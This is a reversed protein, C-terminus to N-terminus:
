FTMGAAINLRTHLEWGLCAEPALYFRDGIKFRVGGGATFAGETHSFKRFGFDNSNRFVGGGVVFFPTVPRRDFADFTANGTLMLDRDSGPGVMYVLEPGIAIRPSVYWRAAAGLIGHDVTAEDVFGAWGGIGEVAGRPGAQASAAPPFGLCLAALFAAVHTKMQGGSM